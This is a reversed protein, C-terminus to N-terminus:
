DRGRRDIVDERRRADGQALARDEPTNTAWGVTTM